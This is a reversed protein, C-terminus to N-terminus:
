RSSTADPTYVLFEKQNKVLVGIQTNEQLFQKFENYQTEIDKKLCYKWKIKINKQNIMPLVVYKSIDSPLYKSMFHLLKDKQLLNIHTQISYVPERFNFKYFDSNLQIIRINKIISEQLGTIWRFINYNKLCDLREPFKYDLPISVGKPPVQCHGDSTAIFDSSCWKTSSGRGASHTFILVNDVICLNCELGAQPRLQAFCLDSREPPCVDAERDTFGLYGTSFWKNLYETIKKVCHCDKSAEPSFTDLTYKCKSKQVDSNLICNDCCSKFVNNLRIM